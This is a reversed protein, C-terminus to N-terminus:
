DLKFGVPLTYKVRVVRGNQKGPTWKPMLQVLRLAEKGCGAGIDRLIKADSISGDKEIICQVIVKGTIGNSKAAPPYILNNVLFTNLAEDGGPFQPRQEVMTLVEDPDPPAHGKPPEPAEELIVEVAEVREPTPPTPETRPDFVFTEGTQNIALWSPPKVDDNQAVAVLRGRVTKSYFFDQHQLKNAESISSCKGFPILVKGNPDLLAKQQSSQVMFYGNQFMAVTTYEFAPTEPHDLHIL